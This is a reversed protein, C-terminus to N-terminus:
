LWQMVDELSIRRPFSSGASCRAGSFLERFRRSGASRENRRWGVGAVVGNLLLDTLVTARRRAADYLPCSFSDTGPRKAGRPLGWVYVRVLQEPGRVPLTRFWMADILSFVTTNAALGLTISLLAIITFAPAKRL